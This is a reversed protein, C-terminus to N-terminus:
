ATDQSTPIIAVIRHGKHAVYMCDGEVEIHAGWLFARAELEDASVTRAEGSM